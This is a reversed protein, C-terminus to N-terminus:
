DTVRSEEVEIEATKTAWTTWINGLRHPRKSLWNARTHMSRPREGCSGSFSLSVTSADLLVV